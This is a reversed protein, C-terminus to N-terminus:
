ASMKYSKQLKDNLDWTIKRLVSPRTDDRGSWARDDATFEVELALVDAGFAAPHIARFGTGGLPIDLLVLKVDGNDVTKFNFTASVAEALTTAGLTGAIGLALSRAPINDSTSTAQNYITVLDFVTTSNVFPALDNCLTTVMNDAEVTTFGDHAVYSGLVGAGVNVPLWQLTPITMKHAGFLTHYDIILSSPSLSNPTM